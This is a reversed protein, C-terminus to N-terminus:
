LVISMAEHQAARLIAETSATSTIAQQVMNDVIQALAPFSRSRPLTRAGPTLDALRHYFPIAANVEPDQWTSLRCGIAGEMTTLKDMEPTCAHRLFAYALDKHRSGSGVVLTWYVSLSVSQELNGAPLEGIGVKGKVACGPQECVAAFGFWNIMMAVRGEAFLEGSRVSDIQEPGPYVASADRVIRRYFNGTGSSSWLKVVKRAGM